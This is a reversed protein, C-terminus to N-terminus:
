DGSIRVLRRWTYSPHVPLGSSWREPREGGALKNIRGIQLWVAARARSLLKMIDLVQLYDACVVVLHHHGDLVPVLVVGVVQVHGLGPAQEERQHQLANHAAASGLAVDHYVQVLHALLQRRGPEAAGLCELTNQAFKGSHM